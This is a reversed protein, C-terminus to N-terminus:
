SAPSKAAGPRLRLVGAIGVILVIVVIFHGSAVWALGNFGLSDATWGGVLAGLSGGATMAASSAAALRGAPDALSLIGMVYPVIFLALILFVPVMTAYVWALPVYVLALVALTKLTTAVVIPSTHGWRTDIIRALAPGGITLFAAVSLVMGIQGISLDVRNGLREVFTWVANHGIWLIILAGLAVYGFTPVDRLRLGQLESAEMPRDPFWFLMLGGAAAVGAMMLFAGSAGSMEIFIPVSLYFIMSFLAYAGNLMAFTRTPHTTGAALSFVIAVVLGKGCGTMIRYATLTSVTEAFAALLNGLLLLTLGIIVTPLAKFRQVQLAVIISVIAVAAFEVSAVTGAASQTLSLDDIIAGIWLPMVMQSSFGTCVVFILAALEIPRFDRATARPPPPAPGAM